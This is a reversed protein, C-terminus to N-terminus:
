RVTRRNSSAPDQLPVLEAVAAGAVLSHRVVMVVMQDIDLAALHDLEDVVLQFRQLLSNGLLEAEPEDIVPHLKVADGEISVM